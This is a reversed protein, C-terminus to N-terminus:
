AEQINITISAASSVPLEHAGLKLSAHVGNILWSSVDTVGPDVAHIESLIRSQSVWGGYDWVWTVGDDEEIALPTLLVLLANRIAEANGGAWAVTAQITIVRPEFNFVGVRHNVVLVGATPPSAYRNGNFYEELQERQDQTLTIGGNGVVMLKVTKPGLGEEVANARAVPKVGDADVFKKVALRECDPGTAATDRTRLGAPADRKVREIDQESGGDKMRWGYAARPNTVESIGNVGDANTTIEEAGVNGDLDGGVRYAVRVNSTGTPPIKGTMGDGFMITAKDSADTEIMYHRSTETSNLFNEVRVWTVWNGSGEDIEVEDSDDLFPTEPLVFSQSPTGVSSGVVQPGITEGQTATVMIFQDGQDISVEEITPSTPTSVAVVRYRTWWGVFTNAEYENWSRQQDQPLNFSVSGDVTFNISGDDQNEFPVWDARVAYDDVDESPTVQGLLGVTIVRNVTSFTSVLREKQGTPIYEVVVDAGHRDPTGLLSNVNFTMTGDHNDTVLTPPLASLIGDYYEWCGTIGVSGATVDVDVQGPFCQTHGVLLADGAIPTAWPVYTSGPTYNEVAFDATFAKLVWTLNAETQFGPSGSGPVRVVRVHDADIYETVRFEGGNGSVGQLIFLHQSVAASTFTDGSTRAFQDPGTTSVSGIGTKVTELGFVHAPRDTRTLDVGGAELVEYPIPPVSETAFESLEPIFGTVDATTVESLKLLLNAKAPSASNLRVGILKMLRKLSELLVLTDVLTEQAILDTRCNNLHGVLAFARLIQVHVEYENEDTLGMADRNRRFYYLLEKLIEPYYFASFECSPVKIVSTM